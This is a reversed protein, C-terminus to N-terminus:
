LFTVNPLLLSMTKNCSQVHTCIQNYNVRCVVEGPAPLVFRHVQSSTTVLLNLGDRTERISIGGPLHKCSDFRIRVGNSHLSADLSLDVLELCGDM